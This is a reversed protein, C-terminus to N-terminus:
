SLLPVDDPLFSTSSPRLVVPPGVSSKKRHSCSVVAATLVALGLGSGSCGTM